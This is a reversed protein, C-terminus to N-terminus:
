SFALNFKNSMIFIKSKNKFDALSTNIIINSALYNWVHVSVFRINRYMFKHKGYASRIKDKNHTNYSTLKYKPNSPDTIEIFLEEWYLSDVTHPNVKYNWNRHIYCALGGHASAYRNKTVLHYNEIQYLGLDILESNEFWTEQLCLM